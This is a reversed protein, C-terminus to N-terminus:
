HKALVDVYTWEPEWGVPLQLVPGDHAKPHRKRLEPSQGCIIPADGLRMLGMRDGTLLGAAGDERVRNFLIYKGDPSVTGGYLHRGEEGYVLRADKGEGDAMWLQTYGERGVTFPNHSFLVHKSDPFWDPTCEAGGFFGPATTSAVKSFKKISNIEGTELSMRVVTWMQGYASSVGCFWKGDPSWFLQQYIGKRPLERVVKKTAMDVIQIGKRTLCAIQKGDPSWSAWAYEGDKGFVVPDSGDANALILNGQGGWQNHHIKADRSIRRYILKRGDHSFRAGGEYYEPTNTIQRKDSGDPRMLYLDMGEQLSGLGFIIWGKDHVERALEAVRPDDKTAASLREVGVTVIILLCTGLRIRRM